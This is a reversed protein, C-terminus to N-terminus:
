WCKLVTTSGYIGTSQAEFFFLAKIRFSPFLIKHVNPYKKFFAARYGFVM